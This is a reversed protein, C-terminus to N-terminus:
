IFFSCSKRVLKRPDIPANQNSSETLFRAEAYTEIKKLRFSPIPITTAFENM